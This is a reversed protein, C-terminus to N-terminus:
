EPRTIPAATPLRAAPVTISTTRDTIRTPQVLPGLLPDREFLAEAVSLDEDEDLVVVGGVLAGLGPLGTCTDEGIPSPVVKPTPM